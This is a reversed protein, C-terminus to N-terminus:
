LGELPSEGGSTNDMEKILDEGLQKEPLAEEVIYGNIYTKTGKKNVKVGLTLVIEQKEAWRPETDLSSINISSYQNLYPKLEKCPNAVRVGYTYGRQAGKPEFVKGVKIEVREFTKDFDM